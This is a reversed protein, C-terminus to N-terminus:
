MPLPRPCKTNNNIKEELKVLTCNVCLISLKPQVFHLTVPKEIWESEIDIEIDIEIKKGSVFILNFYELM